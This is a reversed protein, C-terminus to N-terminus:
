APYYGIEGVNVRHEVQCGNHHEHSGVEEGPKCPSVM